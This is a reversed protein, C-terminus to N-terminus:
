KIEVIIELYIIIKSAIAFIKEEVGPNQVIQESITSINNDTLFAVFRNILKALNSFIGERRVKQNELNLLFNIVDINVDIILSFNQLFDLSKKEDDKIKRYHPSIKKVLNIKDKHSIIENDKFAEMFIENLNEEFNLKKIRDRIKIVGEMENTTNALQKDYYRSEEKRMIDHLNNDQKKEIEQFKRKKPSDFMNTINNLNNRSIFKEEFDVVMQDNVNLNQHSVTTPINSASAKKELSKNKNLKKEERKKKKQNKQKTTKMLNKIVDEESYNGYTLTLNFFDNQSYDSAVDSDDIWPDNLDYYNIENEGQSSLSGGEECQIDEPNKKKNNLNMKEKKKATLIKELENEDFKRGIEKTPALKGHKM